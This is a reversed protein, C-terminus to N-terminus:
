PEEALDLACRPCEAACIGCGKCFDLLFRRGTEDAAVAMDPCFLRCNDCGNCRGFQFCRGAERESAEPDLGRVVEFFDGSRESASRVPAASPPSRFFYDTKLDTFDVIKQGQLIRQGGVYREFSLAPGNGVRSEALAQSVGEEGGAFFADVALAAAKGSAVADAVSRAPNTLDGGWLRLPSAFAVRCHGLDRAEPHVAFAADADAGVGSVVADFEADTKSGEVPSVRARGDAGTAVVEMNMFTAAVKKGRRSFRVPAQLTRLEVGEELAMALEPAFAPMDRRRRRYVIVPQAGLRRVSRAVDVATNGGGIVAVTGALAPPRGSRVDSLLCLGDTM